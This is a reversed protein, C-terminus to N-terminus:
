ECLLSPLKAKVGYPRGLTEENRHVRLGTVAPHRTDRDWLLVLDLQVREIRQTNNCSHRLPRPQPCADEVQREVVCRQEGPPQCRKIDERTPPQRDPEPNAPTRLLEVCHSDGNMLTPLSRVLSEVHELRDPRLVRYLKLPADPLDRRRIYLRLWHLLRVWRDQHRRERRRRHLSNRRLRVAPKRHSQRHGRHFLHPFADLAHGFLGSA